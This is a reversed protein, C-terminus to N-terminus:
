ITTIALQRPPSQRKTSHPVGDFGDDAIVTNLEHVFGHGLEDADSPGLM